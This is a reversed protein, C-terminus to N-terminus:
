LIHRSVMQQHIHRDINDLKVSRILNTSNIFANKQKTIFGHIFAEPIAPALKSVLLDWVAEKLERLERLEQTEPIKNSLSEPDKHAEFGSEFESKIRLWEIEEEKELDNSLSKVLAGHKNRYAIKAELRDVQPGVIRRLIKYGESIQLSNEEKLLDSRADAIIGRVMLALTKEHGPFLDSASVLEEIVDRYVRVVKSMDLCGMQSRLSLFLTLVIWWKNAPTINRNKRVGEVVLKVTYEDIAVSRATLFTWLKGLDEQNVNKGRHLVVKNLLKSDDMWERQGLDESIFRVLETTDRTATAFDDMIKIMLNRGVLLGMEQLQNLFKERLFINGIADYIRTYTSLNIEIGMSKSLKLYKLVIQYTNTTSRIQSHILCLKLLNNITDINPKHSDKNMVLLLERAFSSQNKDYGFFKILYNYTHVTRVSKFEDNTLKHTYLLIDPVLGVGLSLSNRYHFTQHTLMYIYEQFNDKTLPHPMPPIEEFSHRGYKETYQATPHQESHQHLVHAVSGKNSNGLLHEPTMEVLYEMMKEFYMRDQLFFLDMPQKGTKRQWNTTALDNDYKPLTDNFIKLDPLELPELFDQYLKTQYKKIDRPITRLNPTTEPNKLIEESKTITSGKPSIDVKIRQRQNTIPIGPKPSLEAKIRPQKKSKCTKSNVIQAGNPTGFSEIQRVSRGVRSITERISLM